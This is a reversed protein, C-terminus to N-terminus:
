EIVEDVRFLVFPEPVKLGLAKATKLNIVVDFKTPLLIPLDAPKAGKLIRGTYVGAQRYAHPVSAGYSLLGGSRVFADEHYIAPIGYRAALAVILDRQTTFFIDGNIVLADPRQQGLQVFAQDIEAITSASLIRLHQGLSGAATHLSTQESPRLPNQPNHLVAIATAKPMLERLLELRKPGLARGSFSVGTTNGEPRSLSTVLGSEIPDAGSTFVVPITASSARAALVSRQGGSAFIVAAQGVVLESALAPLRDYQGSAWRYEIAVNQGPVFGAENLGQRFAVTHNAYGDLSGANLSGVVPMPPQQAGAALPWAMAAGVFLAIFRRRKM